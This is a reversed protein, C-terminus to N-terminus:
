WGPYRNTAVRLPWPGRDTWPPEPAPELPPIGLGGVRCSVLPDCRSPDSADGPLHETAAVVRRLSEAAEDPGGSSPM